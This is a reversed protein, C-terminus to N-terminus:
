LDHRLPLASAFVRSCTVHEFGRRRWDVGGSDAFGCSGWGEVAATATIVERTRCELTLPVSGFQGHQWPHKSTVDMTKRKVDKM